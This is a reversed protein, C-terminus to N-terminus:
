ETNFKDACVTKSYALATTQKVRLQQLVQQLDTHKALVNEAQV